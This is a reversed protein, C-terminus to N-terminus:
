PRGGGSASTICTLPDAACQQQSSQAASANSGSSDSSTDGAFSYIEVIINHRTGAGRVRGGSRVGFQPNADVCERTIQDVINVFDENTITDSKFKDDLRASVTAEGSSYQINQTFFKPFYIIDDNRSYVKFAAAEIEPRTLGTSPTCEVDLRKHLRFPTAWTHHLLLFLALISCLSTPSSM